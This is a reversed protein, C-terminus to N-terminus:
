RVEGTERLDVDFTVSGGSQEIFMELTETLEVIMERQEYVTEALDDILEEAHEARGNAVSQNAEMRDRLTELADQITTEEGTVPDHVILPEGADQVAESGNDETPEEDIDEPKSLAM